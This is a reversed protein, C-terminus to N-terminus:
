LATHGSKRKQQPVSHIKGRPPEAAGKQSAAAARKERRGFNVCLSLYVANEIVPGSYEDVDGCEAFGLAFRYGLAPSVRRSPLIKLQADVFFGVRCAIGVDALMGMSFGFATQLKVANLINLGIAPAISFDLDPFPFSCSLSEMFGLSFIGSSPPIDFLNYNMIGFVGCPMLFSDFSRRGDYYDYSSEEVDVSQWGGFFQLDSKAFIKPACFLTMLALATLTRKM